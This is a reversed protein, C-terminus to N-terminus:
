IQPYMLLPDVSSSTCSCLSRTLPLFHARRRRGSRRTPFRQAARNCLALKRWRRHEPVFVILCALLCRLLFVVSRKGKLRRMSGDPVRWIIFILRVQSWGRYHLSANALVTHQATFTFTWLTTEALFQEIFKGHASRRAWAKVGQRLCVLASVERTHHKHKQCTSHRQKRQHHRPLSCGDFVTQFGILSLLNFDVECSFRMDQPSFFLEESEHVSASTVFESKWAAAVLMQARCM